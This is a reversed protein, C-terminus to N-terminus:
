LERREAADRFIGQDPILFFAEQGRREDPLVSVMVVGVILIKVHVQDFGHLPRIHRQLFAALIDAAPGAVAIHLHQDPLLRQQASLHLDDAASFLDHVHRDLVAQDQPGPVAFLRLDYFLGWHVDQALGDVPAIHFPVGVRQLSEKGDPAPAVGDVTQGGAHEGAREQGPFVDEAALEVCGGLEAQPDTGLHRVRGAAYQGPSFVRDDVMGARDAPDRFAVPLQQIKDGTGARLDGSVGDLAIEDVM